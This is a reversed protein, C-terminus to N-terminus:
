KIHTASVYIGCGFHWLVTTPVAAECGCPWLNSAQLRETDLQSRLIPRLLSQSHSNTEIHGYYVPLKDLIHSCRQRFVTHYVGCGGTVMLAHAAPKSFRHIFTGGLEFSETNLLPVCGNWAHMLGEVRQEKWVPFPPLPFPQAWPQMLGWVSIPDFSYWCNAILLWCIIARLRSWMQHQRCWFYRTRQKWSHILLLRSRWLACFIYRLNKM